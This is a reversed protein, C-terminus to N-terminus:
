TRKEKIVRGEGSMAYGLPLQWHVNCLPAATIPQPATYISCVRGCERCRRGKPYTKVAQRKEDFSLTGAIM